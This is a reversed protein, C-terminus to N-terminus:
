LGDGVRSRDEYRPGCVGLVLKHLMDFPMRRLQAGLNRSDLRDVMWGIAFKDGGGSFEEVRIMLHLRANLGHRHCPSSTTRIM